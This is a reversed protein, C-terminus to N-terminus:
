FEVTTTFNWMTPDLYRYTYIPSGNGDVKAVGTRKRSSSGTQLDYLNTVGFRFSTSLGLLKRKHIIYAGVPHTTAGTYTIGNLTSINYNSQWNGYLAVRTGKLWTSRNFEYDVLWNASYPKSRTGTVDTVGLNSSLITQANAINGASEAQTPDGGPANAANTRAIAATLLSQFQGFDRSATLENYAFTVRAQVGHVRQLQLTAEAGKAQEAATVTRRESNLGNAIHLYSPDSASLNNPNFLDELQTQNLLDPTWTFSANDRDIKYAAITYFLVNHGLTGKLGIEKTTGLVPGLTRGDFSQAAQWRFSESYSGYVNLTPLLSYSAGGSYSTNSLDFQPDYAYASPAADPDGPFLDQGIADKSWTTVRKRSFKDHRVGLLSRLRGGFYEGSASLTYSHQYRIDVWPRNADTNEYWGPRFTATTPLNEALFRTWYTRSHIAPDDLYARAAIVHNTIPVPGANEAAFNALTERKSYAYDKQHSATAVVFQKMWSGFAFPYSATLRGIKVRNGFVKNNYQDLDTYPRGSADVSITTNFSIDNRDQHQNQQNYAGELTLKGIQQEVWATVVTYPRNLFDNIGLINFSKDYGSFTRLSGDPMKVQQTMGEILTLTDGSAGSRDIASPTTSSRQLIEGDSTYFWRNNSSFGRGLAATSRISVTNDARRRDFKGAEAEFRVTTGKFPTYIVALDGARLSSDSFDLYFRESRDVLNIRAAVHKGIVRNVDLQVRHGGYRGYQGMVSGFNKFRAQKTYTTAQGGPSADGFMLSNSGKNFDIRELNYTDTPTYWMFFNRSAQSAERDGIQMGRYSLMQDDNRRELWSTVDVNAVWRATDELTFTSMDQMFQGTIADVTLPVNALEQNTRSGVLTSSAIWGVDRDTTVVFPSLEVPTEVEKHAPTPAAPSTQGLLPLSTFLCCAVFRWATGLPLSDCSPPNM